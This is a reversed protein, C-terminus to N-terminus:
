QKASSDSSGRKPTSNVANVAHKTIADFLDAARNPDNALARGARDLQEVTLGRQRLIARRAAAKTATDSGTADLRRLDAMTAVFTSDSVGPVIDHRACAVTACALLLFARSYRQM